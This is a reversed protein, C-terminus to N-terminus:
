GVRSKIAQLTRMLMEFIWKENNNRYKSWIILNIKLIKVNKYCKGETFRAEIKNLDKRSNRKKNSGLYLVKM